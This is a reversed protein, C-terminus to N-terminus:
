IANLIPDSGPRLESSALSPPLHGRWALEDGGGDADPRSRPHHGRDVLEDM